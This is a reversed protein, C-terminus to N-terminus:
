KKSREELDSEYVAWGREKLNFVDIGISVLYEIVESNTLIYNHKNHRSFLMENKRTNILNTITDMEEDTMDEFPRLILKCKDISYKLHITSELVNEAILSYHIHDRAVEVLIRKITGKCVTNHVRQGIYMGFAQEKTIM